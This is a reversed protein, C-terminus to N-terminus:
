DQKLENLLRFLARFSHPPRSGAKEAHAKAVLERVQEASEGFPICLAALEAPEALMLQDRLAELAKLRQTDVAHGESIADIAKRIEAADVEERMVRGVYQMQRRKGEHDSIGKWELVAELLIEPLHMKKLRGVTLACLEEGILQQATSDRKRQSRSVYNDESDQDNSSWQYKTAKKAM